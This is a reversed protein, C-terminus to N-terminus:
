RRATDDRTSGTAEAGLAGLIQAYGSHGRTLAHIREREPESLRPKGDDPTRSIGEANRVKWTEHARVLGGAASEPRLMGPEETLDLFSALRTAYVEPRLLLDDYSVFAHGETGIFRASISVAETWDRAASAVTLARWTNPNRAATVLRSTIADVPDRVVHIMRAGPIHALIRSTRFVHSPTKEVWCSAGAHIAADDLMNVLAATLRRKTTLTPLPPSVDGDLERRTRQLAERARAVGLGPVLALVTRPYMRSFFHTEPFSFVMSHAALM